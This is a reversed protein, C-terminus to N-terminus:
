NTPMFPVGQVPALKQEKAIKRCGPCNVSDLQDSAAELNTETAILSRKHDCAIRWHSGNVGEIPGMKDRVMFHVLCLLQIMPGETEGCKPCKVDGETAFEFNRGKEACALNLCRAVVPQKITRDDPIVVQDSM